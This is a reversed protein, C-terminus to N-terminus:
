KIIVPSNFYDRASTNSQCLSYIDGSLIDLEFSKNFKKFDAPKTIIQLTSNDKIQSLLQMGTKNMGLVRVYEPTLVSYDKTINLIVSLLIRSIKSHTYRKTKIYSCIDDFTSSSYGAEIMRNELGESVDNIESLKDPTMTHLLYRLVNNLNNIDSINKQQYINYANEPVYKRFDEHNLILKRIATASTIECGPVTEHYESKYRKLTLPKINSNLSLLAKIYEIALINNPKSLLDNNIYGSFASERAKPYSIGHELLEKIKDSVEKPENLLLKSAKILENINGSESGFCLSDVIGLKDAIAVSGYAFREATNVAYCVPLEIVLDAGNILATNARTWKDFIAPTGRQVFAGSMICIVTDHTKKIEDIQYKHGNHFPNYECIIASVKM